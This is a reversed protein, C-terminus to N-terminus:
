APMQLMKKIENLASIPAKQRDIQQKLANNEKLLVQHQDWLKEYKTKWYSKTDTDPVIKKPPTYKNIVTDIAQRKKHPDDKVKQVAAKIESLVQPIKVVGVKSRITQITHPGYERAEVPYWNYAYALQRYRHYTIHCAEWVFDEFSLNKYAKIEQYRKTKQLYWLLGILKEGRQIMEENYKKALKICEDISKHKYKKELVKIDYQM